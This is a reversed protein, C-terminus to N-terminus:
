SYLNGHPPPTSYRWRLGAIRLLCCFPFDPVQSLLIHDRTGRSESGLIVASALALLLQLRYVQGRTLSLARSWCVRLHRIYIFIHDYARSPHKVGLYVPRSVTPRLTLSLSPSYLALIRPVLSWDSIWVVSLFENPRFEIHSCHYDSTITFFNWYIWYYFRSGVIIRWALGKYTVTHLTIV